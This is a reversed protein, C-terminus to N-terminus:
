DTWYVRTQVSYVKYIQSSSASTGAMRKKAPPQAVEGGLKSWCVTSVRGEIRSVVLNRNELEERKRRNRWEEREKGKDKKRGTERRTCGECLRMIM